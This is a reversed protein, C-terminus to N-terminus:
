KVDKPIENRVNKNWLVALLWLCSMGGYWSRYNSSRDCCLSWSCKNIFSGSFMFITKIEFLIFNDNMRALYSFNLLNLFKKNPTLAQLLTFGPPSKTCDSLFLTTDPTRYFQFLSLEGIVKFFTPWIMVDTDSGELRFGEKRSGSLMVYFDTFDTRRALERLVMEEIDTTERRIAM